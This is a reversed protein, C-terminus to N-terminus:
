QIETYLHVPHLRCYSHLPPWSFEASLVPVCLRCDSHDSIGHDHESLCDYWIADIYQGSCDDCDFQGDDSVYRKTMLSMMVMTAPIMADNDFMLTLFCIWWPWKGSDCYFFQGDDCVLMVTMIENDLNTTVFEMEVLTVKLCCLWWHWRIWAMGHERTAVETMKFTWHRRSLRTTKM